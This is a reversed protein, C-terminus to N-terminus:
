AAGSCGGTLASSPSSCVPNLSSDPAGLLSQLPQHSTALCGRGPGLEQFLPEGRSLFLISLCRQWPVRMAGPADCGHADGTDQSVGPLLPGQGAPGGVGSLTKHVTAVEQPRLLAPLMGRLADTTCPCLREARSPEPLASLLQSSGRQHLWAANCTQSTLQTSILPNLGPLTISALEQEAEKLPEQKTITEREREGRKERGGGRQLLRKPKGGGSPDLNPQILKLPREKGEENCTLLAQCAVLAQCINQSRWCGGSSSAPPQSSSGRTSGAPM